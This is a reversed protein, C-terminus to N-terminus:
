DREKNSQWNDCTYVLSTIGGILTGIGAITGGIAAVAEDMALGKYAMFMTNGFAPALLFLTITGLLRMGNSLKM